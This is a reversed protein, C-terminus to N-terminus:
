RAGRDARARPRRGHHLRGVLRKPLCCSGAGTRHPGQRHWLQRGRHHERAARCVGIAGAASSRNEETAAQAPVRRELIAAVEPYLWAERKETSMKPEAVATTPSSTSPIAETTAAGAAPTKIKASEPPLDEQHAATSNAAAPQTSKRASVPTMKVLGSTTRYPRDQVLMKDAVSNRIAEPTIRNAYAMVLARTKSRSYTEQYSGGCEAVEVFDSCESGDRPGSVFVHSYGRVYIPCQGDRVARRFGILDLPEGAAYPSRRPARRTPTPHGDSGTGAGSSWERCAV